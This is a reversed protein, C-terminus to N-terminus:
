TQQNQILSTHIDFNSLEKNDGQVGLKAGKAFACVSHADGNSQTRKKRKDSIVTRHM